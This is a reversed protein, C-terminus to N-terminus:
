ETVIDWDHLIGVSKHRGDNEIWLVFTPEYEHMCISHIIMGAHIKKGNISVIKKGAYFKNLIQLPNM